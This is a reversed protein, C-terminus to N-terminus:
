GWNYICTANMHSDTDDLDRAETAQVALGHKLM